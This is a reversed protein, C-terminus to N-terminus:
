AEVKLFLWRAEPCFNKGSEPTHIVIVEADRTGLNCGVADNVAAGTRTLSNSSEGGAHHFRCFSKITEVPWEKHRQGGGRRGRERL